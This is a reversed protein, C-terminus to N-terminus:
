RCAGQQEDIACSWTIRNVTPQGVGDVPIFGAANVDCVHPHRNLMHLISESGPEARHHSADADRWWMALNM